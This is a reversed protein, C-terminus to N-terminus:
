FRYSAWLMAKTVTQMAGSGAFHAVKLGIEPGASLPTTLQLDVESGYSASGTAAGFDHYVATASVRGLKTSVSAYLDDLGDAPTALFQDAWGNWAHLTALPTTVRGKSEDAGLREFGAAIRTKGGVTISAEALIWPASFSAPNDGADQQFAYGAKWGASASESLKRSGDLRAGATLSSLGADAARDYDLLLGFASVDGMPGAHVRVDAAHSAMPKDDGFVRHARAIFAYTVAVKTSPALRLVGADYSQHNQRWAVNGVFRADALVLEQRGVQASAKSGKWAVFAQNIEAFNPDAVAPRDTVGNSLRGAGANNFADGGLVSAVAEAELTASFGRYSGSAYKLATRITNALATDDFRSDDVFESRLRLDVGTTGARLAAGPSDQAASSRPLLLTAIALLALAHRKM